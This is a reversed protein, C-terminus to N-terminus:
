LDTPKYSFKEKKREKKEFAESSNAFRSITYINELRM